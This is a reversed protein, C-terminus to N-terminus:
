NGIDSEKDRRKLEERLEATWKPPPALRWGVGAVVWARIVKNTEKDRVFVPVLTQERVEVAKGAPVYVAKRFYSCSPCILSTLALMTLLILLKSLKM